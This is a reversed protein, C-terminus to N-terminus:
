RAWDDTKFQAAPLGARNYLFPEKPINEYCYRVAAPEAVKESWVELQNGVIKSEAPHWRKDKGAIKINRLKGGRVERAPNLKDKSGIMLGPGSHDFEITM